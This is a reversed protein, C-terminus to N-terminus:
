SNKTIDEERKDRLGEREREREQRRYREGGREVKRENEINGEGHRERKRKTEGESRQMSISEDTKGM